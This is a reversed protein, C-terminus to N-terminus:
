IKSQVKKKKELEDRLLSALEYDENDIAERLMTELEEYHLMSYYQETDVDSLNTEFEEAEDSEKFVVSLERMIKETTYIPAKSRLALAVADSTRSEIEFMTEGMMFLLKSFFVGENYKYINVERLKISAKNLVTQFLDHTLPRPPKSNHLKFAISQAEPTGVVVMLRRLGNAEALVLGYTGTQSQNFSFGLVSLKVKKGLM